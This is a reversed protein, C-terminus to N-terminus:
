KMDTLVGCYPDVSNWIVDPPSGIPPPPPVVWPLGLGGKRPVFLGIRFSPFEWFSPYHVVCGGPTFVRGNMGVCLHVLVM